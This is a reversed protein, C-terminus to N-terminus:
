DHSNKNNSNRRLALTRFSFGLSAFYDLNGNNYGLGGYFDLQLDNTALYAFGADWRNEFLVSNYNGYNEMFAGWKQNISYALNIVYIWDPEASNGTYVAGLNTNLNFKKGLPQSVIVIFRSAMYSATYNNSFLPLGVLFLFGLAPSHDKAELINIRTGLSTYSIGNQKSTLSDTSYSDNRFEWYSNLEFQKTLGYRFYTNPILSQSRLIDSSGGAFDIGTQNQFVNKGATYPSNAQGPRDSSITEQYQALSRTQFTLFLILCFSQFTFNLNINNFGTYFNCKCFPKM